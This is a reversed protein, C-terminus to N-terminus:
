FTDDGSDEEGSADSLDDAAYRVHPNRSVHERTIETEARGRTASSKTFKCTVPWQEPPFFIAFGYLELILGGLTAGVLLAVLPGCYTSNSTFIRFRRQRFGVLLCSIAGGFWLALKPRRRSGIRCCCLLYHHSWLWIPAAHSM